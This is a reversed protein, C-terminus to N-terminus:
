LPVAEQLVQERILQHLGNEIVIDVKYGLLDELDALLDGPFWRSHNEAVNILLDIDSNELAEGRAVSGFVRVNYCLAIARERTFYM